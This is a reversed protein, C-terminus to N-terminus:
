LYQKGADFKCDDNPWGVNYMVVVYPLQSDLGWPNDDNDVNGYAAGIPNCANDYITVWNWTTGGDYYYGVFGLNCSGPGQGTCAVLPPTPDSGPYDAQTTFTLLALATAVCSKVRFYM